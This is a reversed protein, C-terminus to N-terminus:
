GGAPTGSLIGKLLSMEKLSPSHTSASGEQTLPSTGPIFIFVSEKDCGWTVTRGGGESAPNRDWHTSSLTKVVGPPTRQGWPEGGTGLWSRWVLRAEYSLAEVQFGKAFRVRAVM